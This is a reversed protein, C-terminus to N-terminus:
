LVLMKLERLRRYATVKYAIEEASLPAPGIRGAEYRNKQKAQREQFEIAVLAQERKVILYPLLKKLLQVARNSKQSFLWHRRNPPKMPKEIVAGGVKSKIWDLVGKHGNSIRVVLTYSETLRRRGRQVIFHRSISIMGEGDCFGAIYASEIDTLAIDQFVRRPERLPSNARRAETVCPQCRTNRGDLMRSRHGFNDLPKSIGCGLCTKKETHNNQM